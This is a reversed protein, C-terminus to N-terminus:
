NERTFMFRAFFPRNNAVIRYIVEILWVFPPLMLPRAMWGFGINAFIFLVARGAKLIEGDAKVVHVAHECAALLEPTMPPSPAEQNPITYFLDRKDHRKIWKTTRRCFGCDRDWLIWHQNPLRGTETM